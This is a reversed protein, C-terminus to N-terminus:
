YIFPNKEGSIFRGPRSASWEDEDGSLQRRPTPLSLQLMVLGRTSLLFQICLCNVRLYLLLGLPPVAYWLHHLSLSLHVQICIFSFANSLYLCISLYITLSVSQNILKNGPLTLSQDGESEEAGFPM